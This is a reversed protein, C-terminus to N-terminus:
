RVNKVGDKEEIIAVIRELQDTSLKTVNLYIIAIMLDYRKSVEDRTM